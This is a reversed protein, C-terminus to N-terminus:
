SGRQRWAQGGDSSSRTWLPWQDGGCTQWGRRRGVTLELERERAQGRCHWQWGEGEGVGEGVGEGEGEGEGERRVASGGRAATVRGVLWGVLWINGAEMRGVGMGISIRATASSGLGLLRPGLAGGVGDSLARGIGRRGVTNCVGLLGCV